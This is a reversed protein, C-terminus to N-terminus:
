EVISRTQRTYCLHKINRDYFFTWTWILYKLQWQIKPLRGDDPSMPSYTLFLNTKIKFYRM